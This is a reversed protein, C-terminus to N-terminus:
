KLIQDILKLVRQNSENLSQQNMKQILQDRKQFTEQIKDVISIDVLDEEEVMYALGQREFSRANLIQDGRSAKKSLPILLSPKKIALLEFLVTAGARSIVLDAMAFFDPLAENVYEFQQYGSKSSQTKDLGDRGCIHCISYNKLLADINKRILDNIAKSGLSGGIILLIPKNSNFHCIKRGQAANGDRLAARVPIGTHVAKSTNIYKITEPFSYCIWRAFPASLRNTLGPTLDSEHIIVPIRLLWSAWVVPCSVFGGKSFVLNPRIKLLLFFSKLVGLGIKFLDTFNKFDFYRRLKGAPIAHYNDVLGETLTKEIGNVQGIYHIELGKLKLDPIIALHPTVHGATGGGTLVIRKM